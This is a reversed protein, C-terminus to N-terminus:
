AVVEAIVHLATVGWVVIVEDKGLAVGRGEDVAHQFGGTCDFLFLEEGVAGVAAAKLAVGDWVHRGDIHGGAREPLTERNGNADGESTLTEVLQGVAHPDEAAIALHRLAGHPLGGLVGGEPLEVVEGGDNVDVTEALTTLGHVAPVGAGIGGAELCEAPVGDLDIAVIHVGDVGGIM